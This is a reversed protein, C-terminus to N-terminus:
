RGILSEVIMAAHERGKDDNDGVVVVDAGDLLSTDTTEWSKKSAGFLVATSAVGELWLRDVDKEGEVVLITRGSRKAMRVDRIRYLPIPNPGKGLKWGDETWHEVHFEKPPKRVAKVVPNGELDEYVYEITKSPRSPRPRNPRSREPRSSTRSDNFLDKMQLDLAEAVDTVDCGAHCHILVRDAVDSVSLSPKQDPHSPCRSYAQDENVQPELGRTELRNLVLRFAQGGGQPVETM